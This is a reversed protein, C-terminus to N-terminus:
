FPLSIVLNNFEEFKGCVQYYDKKGKKVGFVLDGTETDASELVGKIKEGGSEFEFVKGIHKKLQWIFKFPRDAGPSSVVFKLIENKLEDKDIEENFKKSLSSIRDLSLSEESDVFIEVVKNKKEGRVAIDIVKVDTDALIGQLIETIKNQV